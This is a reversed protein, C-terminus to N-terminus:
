GPLVWASVIRAPLSEGVQVPQSVAAIIPTEFGPFALVIEWFGGRYTSREVRASSAGDAPGIYVDGPRVLIEANGSVTDQACAAVIGGSLFAQQGEVREISVPLVSGHGIFRALEATAPRDHITQPDAVQMFRGEGMVAIQDALAFAERQDHTIYLTTAGSLDHFRKLEHEMESRLHPDLNALPEDMLITPSGGALCRALAVRQRQGGSLAAPKRDAYAELRVTALHHDVEESAQAGKRGKAVLPFAVNERVSMHPWLAYSQFVFGIDRDEPPVHLGPRAVPQGHLGISGDDIAELGALCRLLTSKGCGSPGLIVFFAGADIQAFVSDVAAVDGFRKTVNELVVSM